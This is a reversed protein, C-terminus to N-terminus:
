EDREGHVAAMRRASYEIRHRVGDTLREPRCVVVTETGRGGRLRRECTALGSARALWVADGTVQLNQSYAFSEHAYADWLAFVGDEAGWGVVITFSGSELRLSSREGRQQDPVILQVKYEGTPRGGPPATLTFAYFSVRGIGALTLGFPVTELSDHSTATEGLAALIICHIKVKPIAVLPNVQYKTGVTRM